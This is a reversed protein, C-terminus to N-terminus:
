GLPPAWAVRGGHCGGAVDRALGVSKCRGASGVTSNIMAGPTVQVGRVPPDNDLSRRATKQSFARRWADNGRLAADRAAPVARVDDQVTM